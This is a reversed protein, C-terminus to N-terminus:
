SRARSTGSSTTTMPIRSSGGRNDLRQEWLSLVSDAQSFLGDHAVYSGNPGVYANAHRSISDCRDLCDLLDVDKDNGVLPAEMMLRYTPKDPWFRRDGRSEFLGVAGRPTCSMNLVHGGPRTAAEREMNARVSEWRGDLEVANAQQPPPKSKSSM